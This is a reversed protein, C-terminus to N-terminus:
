VEMIEEEKEKGTEDIKDTFRDTLKQLEDMLRHFEDEAIDDKIDRLDNQIDRRVNRVAVKAEEVRRGVQRTLDQRREETLRPMNLRILKGDNNPTLGLDSKLIAREIASIQNVDYPRIALQQPEPVSVVAVQNIQLEVGYQEVVLRDLIKPNARGTRFTALDGDLAHIAGKMREEGDKFLEDILEKSM